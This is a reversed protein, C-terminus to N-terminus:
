GDLGAIRTLLEDVDGNDLYMGFGFRLRRGRHDVVVDAGFLQEALKETDAVSPLVFTLFHGHPRDGHRNDHWLDHQCLRERSLLPHGLAALGDIFRRQLGQVHRHIDAIEIGERALLGLVASMRYIGSVDFTAGAFRMGDDSYMVTETHEAALRGFDAYWGTNIPRLSCGRPVSMFCVGEGSQAYKYGGAIFFIRDAIARLSTPLACFSHYGDVVVVPREPLDEVLRALPDVVLGSNYFVHSFYVLDYDDRARSAAAFRESFDGIPESPVQVINAWGAEALRKAQRRFSHFESDTTLIQIPKHSEFCSILRNVFEHTNPAFVLQEPAPLDLIRAIKRRAEPIVDTWLYSWKRDALRASDDWYALVADRTVDPWFHHSHAAFHLRGPASELFRRFHQKYVITASYRRQQSM